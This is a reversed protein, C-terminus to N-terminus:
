RNKRLFLLALSIAAQQFRSDRDPLQRIQDATMPQDHKNM